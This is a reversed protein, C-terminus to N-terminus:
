LCLAGLQVRRRESRTVGGQASGVEVPGDGDSRNSGLTRTRHRPVKLGLVNATATAKAGARLAAGGCDSQLM